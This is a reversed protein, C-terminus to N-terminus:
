LDGFEEDILAFMEEDSGPDFEQKEETSQQESGASRSDEWRWLLAQLRAAVKDRVSDDSAVDSLAAELRELDALVAPENEPGDPVLETRLRQALAVPTPYDFVLTPALRLGTARKLRNRLEVATLSDLGLDKFARNGQVEDTSPHGLVSAAQERVLELLLRDQESRAVGALRAALISGPEEAGAAGDAGETGQAGSAALSRRVPVTRVVSRFLPPLVGAAAQSRLEATDLRAPVVVPEGCAAGYATAADFLALGEEAPMPAAGVRSMRALDVDSLRGAMGSRQGWLGWALSVAPLGHARRHRALTDLFANAASYNALGAGGLTGSLSSFLVFASLDLHATLAHLNLAGDVKPRLVRDIREPNLAHVVGDDLEAATHVVATLPRDAPVAALVKALQARDAVDCAVVEVSPDSPTDGATGAAGAPGAERAREAARALETLEAALEPMGDAAPGRRSTLLLHRVGREVVLHRALLRALGGSAGTVLVTGNPDFAAGVAAPTGDPTADPSVDARIGAPPAAARVLRAATVEGACLRLQPEGTAVAAAMAEWPNAAGAAPREEDHAGDTELLVFRGPNEVQASRVLGWVPAGVLDQRAVIVLRSAESREDALWAQVLELARHAAARVAEAVNEDTGQLGDTERLGDAEQLGDTEQLGAVEEIGARARTMPAFVLEPVDDGAGLADALATPDAYGDPGTSLVVWRAGAPAPRAEARPVAVPAWEYRFLSDHHTGTAPSPGEGSVQRFTLSDVTAVTEGKADAVVVSVAEEGTRIVRVRLADAGTAHLRVGSWVFPRRSYGPEPEPFLTGLGLPQLAADLLAPHLGFAAADAAVAEPLQVEAFLEDGRRWAARLGHFAPGYDVGLAALREYADGVPVFVAEAPPWVTLDTQETLDTLATGTAAVPSTSDAPGPTEGSAPAGAPAMTGTAHRTWPGDGDEAARSHLTLTRRGSDDAAGLGLQLAVGGREPVILPAELALEEVQGCGVEDGARVALEVFATGPLLVTGAVAHDALWAHSELSLRGTFLVEDSGAVEVAAGLLPHRTSGLGFSLADASKAPATRPWYRRGQFAYTPLEVRRAGEGVLVKTWDVPVGAVYLEAASTLFRELGGEDRRLSGTVVAETEAETDTEDLTEQIGVTLVPHASSEVFTTFGDAALSRVGAEFQVQHRLNRYWYAADLVETDLFANEVTSYFPVSGARPRVGELVTLLEQEIAEVHASHSAYDVAIRRARIGETECASVFSEVAEADGSIVTSRPGNVAATGLSTQTKLRGRVEAESLALSAMGGRGALERGIVQSRLAVVRAGDELSLAGAVVAAAIEGQSHGVVADPVVGVSRWLEALSVMVAWTVPQVVDVRDLGRGESVVELLDWDVFPALAEACRRMWEAFVPSSAILEAGMGVWQSGQGPFVLVTRGMERVAGEVVGAAPAEGRSVAGLGELLGSRGVALVVARNEMPARLALSLGVETPNLEPRAEVFSRLREAQARLAGEGRGSFVWPVAVSASAGPEDSHPADVAPTEEAETAPAQEIIVHANTGSVGFSSVGARRVRGAESPWEREETLLEVAGSSWDVHPSPADVHLTRPLVGQRLAMVMKIVGAAGAAAQTHGINSKVSGLWLPRDEARGQGYTALLAQAEIPDGLTTGTGHAEVADVQDPTLRAQALAQRIVRQQSPGNPATLGNSAGDQNVATGRVVALVEHGNRRAESLRELVLVGIGEGWGTGDAGAAFAKCRGDAALGRQRSFEVFVEPTTMVTVGGALALTCEGQRLSQAALHLAVLSSSCATDVTVAPGELGFTYSVRGSAVSAAIGTGLYGEVAGPDQRLLTAYDQGNSGVFVGTKSGRLSRPDIGAREFAEWSTELLLRQQPDMALAERPNIGFFAADFRDVDALFGGERVYSTGSRDPDPDYLADLDWGREAPFASLGDGGGALLEWLDEPSGVGGPFRCSMSVIAIPEDAAPATSGLAGAMIGDVTPAGEEAETETETEAGAYVGLLYGTLDGATPYDYVVSAPLRLGTAANLRNRLRVAGLSDCGLDKFARGPDIAQPGAHGLVTAAQTRVVQLLHDRQEARSLGALREALSGADHGTEAAGRAGPLAASAASIERVEPLDALLPSPRAATFAPVFREWDVDAVMVAAEGRGVAQAMETLAQEPDMELFGTRHLQQSAADDMAMGSHAWAGWAVSTAPLGLDQRQQALADLFANAASYNAQGENGLVGAASSFLIFADLDPTLERTLEDLVAAADAKARLVGAVREPSLGELVGDDLVGAAHVVASLGPLSGLLEAVAGRDAVDCAAVGLEVGLAAFEAEVSEVGSAGAGSRSALVVREAGRRAAWLAVRRGLAGTGGTVLVTGRPCWVGASGGGG